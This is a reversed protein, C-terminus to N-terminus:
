RRRRAANTVASSAAARGKSCYNEHQREVDALRYRYNAMIGASQRFGRESTDALWNLREVRAGNTLHFHAVRDFAHGRRRSRLLYRAALHILIPRLVTAVADDEHWGPRDLLVRLADLGTSTRALAILASSDHDGLVARSRREIHHDLWRRFDPLPSLTAFTKLNPLDHALDTAVRKILFGGFGVGDLGRQCNSISYFIATDARDPDEVPGAPDLLSQVNDSMGKVLAVEVFILPEDEMNPHFFAYCHRDADVRNKLDNWSGIEHVAEYRMLKELLAAPTAWTIRRLKLFGVDFWSALLRRLDRDLQRLPPADRAARIVDARLDVLFKIGRPLGNFQKLLTVYGPVLVDAMRESAARREAASRAAQRAQIARDVTADEIDYERVLLELFRRKGAANLTQYAHGLEVARDRASVEDSKAELCADIYDRLRVEDGAGLEPDLGGKLRDRRGRGLRWVRRFDM